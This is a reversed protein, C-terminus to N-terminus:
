RPKDAAAAGGRLPVLQALRCWPINCTCAHSRWQAMHSCCTEIQIVHAARQPRLGEPPKWGPM